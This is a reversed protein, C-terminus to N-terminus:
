LTGSLLARPISRCFPSTTTSTNGTRIARSCISNWTQHTSLAFLAETNKPQLAVIYTFNQEPGVGIYVGGPKVAKRLAPIVNQYASENSVFNDSPFYGGRESFDTIMNWFERDTLHAPLKEAVPPSAGCGYFLFTFILTACVFLLSRRTVNPTM